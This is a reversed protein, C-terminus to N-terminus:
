FGVQAVRLSLNGGLHDDVYSTAGTALLQLGHTKVVSAALENSINALGKVALVEVYTAVVDLHLVLIALGIEM